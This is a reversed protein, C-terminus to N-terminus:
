YGEQEPPGYLTEWMPVPEGSRTAPKVTRRFFARYRAAKSSLVVPNETGNDVEVFMVPM